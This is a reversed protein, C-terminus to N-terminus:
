ANVEISIEKNFMMLAETNKQVAHTSSDPTTVDGAYVLLQHTCNIQLGEENAQVKRTAYELSVNKKHDDWTVSLFKVGSHIEEAWRQM